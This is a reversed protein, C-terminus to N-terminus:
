RLEGPNGPPAAHAMLLRLPVSTPALWLDAGWRRAEAPDVDGRLVSVLLAEELLFDARRHGSGHMSLLALAVDRAEAAGASGAELLDVWGRLTEPLRAYCPARRLAAAIARGGAGGVWPVLQPVVDQFQVLWADALADSACAQPLARLVLLMGAATDNADADRRPHAGFERAVAQAAYLAANGRTPSVAPLASGPARIRVAVERVDLLGSADSGLFRHRAAHQDVVPNYDSNAVLPLTALLPEVLRRDGVHLLAVDPLARIGLHELLPRLGPVAAGPWQPEPVRGRPTAVIVMDSNGLAYLAYDGFEAGLAKLVSGIITVDSEYVHLWQVLLGGDALHRRAQAYFERSFLTAVGSVWPNSPESVIVDYRQRARAFYTKADEVHVRSRPDDYARAVLDGFLRAGEVMAPEIEITDVREVRPDHLLAHTSRGSGFGIVAATKPAPHMLAPLAGLLIMTYDDDSPEPGRSLGADVKGNTAIALNEPTGFVAVSATKGDRYFLVPDPRLAKGTRFVGSTLRAPDFPAAVVIAAAVAWAGGLAARQAPALVGPAARLLWAGLALDVFAGIVIVERLGLLPMVVHLAVLVGTIAGVTNAAYVRGIAAEGHGDKLLLHTILPLTMGACITVPLMMVLCIGHSLLMYLAYGTDNRGVARLLAAMWEFTQPYALITGLALLAMVVQVAGLVLLPNRLQEIRSRILYSGLALGLIFSSLMLEFSHTAAGLVLSLMRLWGIEYFFSAAGTFFAAALMLPLGPGGGRGGPASAVPPSPARDRAVLWVGLVLLFNILGATMMTGPLGVAAILVFGSVLVGASAGLSNTFYLWALVRGAMGEALRLVGASMLPFTMGLLVSQPLIVATSLGWKLADIALPSELAPIASDFTWAQLGRFVPDFLFAAGGLAAEIAAYALLPQRVRRSREGALWAGLAMGGMFIMLVLSQAYAAHGLFLKLYHSWISEYILGAFGSLTFLAYLAFRRSAHADTM